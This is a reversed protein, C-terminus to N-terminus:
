IIFDIIAKTIKNLERNYDDPSITGEREQEDIRNYRQNLSILTAVRDKDKESKFYGIMALFLDPFKCETLLQQWQNKLVSHDTPNSQGGEIGQMVDLLHAVRKLYFEFNDLFFEAHGRVHAISVLDPDRGNYLSPPVPIDLHKELFTVCYNFRDVLAYGVRLSSRRDRMYYGDWENYQLDECIIQNLRERRTSPDLDLISLIFSVSISKKIIPISERELIVRDVEPMVEASIQKLVFCDEQLSVLAKKIQLLNESAM